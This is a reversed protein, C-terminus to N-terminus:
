DSDLKLDFVNPGSPSISIVLTTQSNYKAPITELLDIVNEDPSEVFTTVYVKYKGAKVGPQQASGDAVFKFQGSANTRISCRNGNQSNLPILEIKADQLIQGDLTVVGSVSAYQSVPQTPPNRNALRPLVLKKLMPAIPRTLRAKNADPRLGISEGPQFLPQNSIRKAIKSRIRQLPLGISSDPDFKSESIEVRSFVKPQSQVVSNEFKMISRALSSEPIPSESDIAPFKSDFDARVNLEVVPPQVTSVRAAPKSNRLIAKSSDPEFPGVGATEFNSQDPDVATAKAPRDLEAPLLKNADLPAEHIDTRSLLDVPSAVGPKINSTTAVPEALATEGILLENETPQVPADITPLDSWTPATPGGLSAAVTLQPFQPQRNRADPRLAVWQSDALDLPVTEVRANRSRELNPHISNSDAPQAEDFDQRSFDNAQIKTERKNMALEVNPEAFSTSVVPLEFEGPRTAAELTPQLNGTLRPEIAEAMEPPNNLGLTLPRRPTKTRSTRTTGPGVSPKRITTGDSALNRAPRRSTSVNGPLADIRDNSKPSQDQKYLPLLRHRVELSLLNMTTVYIRGGFQGWRDPVPQYPHWSGALDGSKEQSRTLLPRLRDNWTKWRPGDIHKLVQTAYYWYYTDRLVPSSDSPLQQDLLFDAGALLRPDDRDWGSYIRMLLGVSTMSPTPTRGQRERSVGKSDEAFPNYRFRSANDPDAAVDLWDEVSDFTKPDVDLGALRGSQLAMMMWGSVSTDSSKKSPEDFYRWGGKRPDQSRAIYDLAKQAPEKLRADQTMGYAETLALAAIGHSYLRCAGNSRSDSAVYLGGDEAQNEILWEIAHDIQRAYKFERHNYGAGQFALLALGTAATDSNLQSRQQPADRDFGSLSWSGDLSQHRALFELGLHIAAETSPEAASSMASPNRNRFADRAIVADPNVAPTGGFRPSQFRTKLDPQIQESDRSSPRSMVGIFSDPRVGLGAPGEEALVDLKIGQIQEMAAQATRSVTVSTSDLEQNESSDSEESKMALGSNSTGPLAPIVAPKNAERTRPNARNSLDSNLEPVANTSVSTGARRSTSAEIVPLSTAAQILLNATSM